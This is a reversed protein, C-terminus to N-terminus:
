RQPLTPSPLIFYRERLTSIKGKKISKKQTVSQLNLLAEILPTKILSDENENKLAIKEFNGIEVDFDLLASILKSQIPAYQRIQNM